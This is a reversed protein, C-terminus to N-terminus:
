RYCKSWWQNRRRIFTSLKINFLLERSETEKQMCALKSWNHRVRQSEIFWLGGPEEPWLIRWALIGSHTSLRKWPIKEVCTNFGYRKHRRCQCTPEKGGTGGPFGRIFGWAFWTYLWICKVNHLITHIHTDTWPPTYPLTVSQYM